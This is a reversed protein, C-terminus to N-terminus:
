QDCVKKQEVYAGILGDVLPILDQLDHESIHYLKEEKFFHIGGYREQKYKEEIPTCVYLKKIITVLSNIQEDYTTRKSCNEQSTISGPILALPSVDLAKSLEIILSNSPRSHQNEIDSVNEESLGVKEGLEKQTIGKLERISKIREGENLSFEYVPIDLAEAIKKLTEDRLHADKKEFQGVASRTVGLRKALEDQTIGKKKRAQRVLEGITM